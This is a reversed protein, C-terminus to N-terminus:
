RPSAARDITRFTLTAIICAASGLLIAMVLAALLAVIAGAMRSLIFDQSEAFNLYSAGSVALITFMVATISASLKLVHLNMAEAIRIQLLDVVAMARESRSHRDFADLRKSGPGFEAMIAQPPLAEEWGPAILSLADTLPEAPTRNESGADMAERNIRAAMQGCLQRYHLSYFARHPLGLLTPVFGEENKLAKRIRAIYRAVRRERQFAGDSQASYDPSYRRRLRELASAYGEMEFARILPGDVLAVTQDHQIRRRSFIETYGYCIVGTLTGGLLVTIFLGGVALGLDRFLDLM